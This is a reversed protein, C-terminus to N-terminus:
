DHNESTNHTTQTSNINKHQTAFDSCDAHISSQTPHTSHTAKELPALYRNFADNFQTYEFGQATKDVNLRVTKSKIQFNKLKKTLQHQTLKSDSWCLEEDELLYKLLQKSSCVHSNHSELKYRVDFLLQVNDSLKEDAGHIKIAANKAQELWDKGALKSIALMTSWCDRQRDNLQRPMEDRIQPLLDPLEDDFEVVIRALQRQIRQWHNPRVSSLFEKEDEIGKRRLYFPIGRDLITDPPLGIGAVAKPSFTSFSRPIKEKGDCRWVQGNAKVGSNFTAILETDKNLFTDIEDVLITPHYLEVMRFLVAPTIHDAKVPRYVLNELLDLFLSKGCRKEPASIIAIPAYEASKLWTSVIWLAAALATEPECVIFRNIEYVLDNLLAAANVPELCPKVHPFPSDSPASNSAALKLKKLSVQGDLPSTM